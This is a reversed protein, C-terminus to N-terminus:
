GPIPNATFYSKLVAEKLGTQYFFFYETFFFSPAHRRCAHPRRAANIESDGRITIGKQRAARRGQQREAEDDDTGEAM